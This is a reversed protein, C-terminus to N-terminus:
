GGGVAQHGEAPVPGEGREEGGEEGERREPGRVEAGGPRGGGQMPVWGWTGGCDSVRHKLNELNFKQSPWEVIFM